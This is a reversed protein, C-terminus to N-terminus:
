VTIDLRNTRFWKVMTYITHRDSYDIYVFGTGSLFSIKFLPTLNEAITQVFYFFFVNGVFPHTGPNLVVGQIRSQLCRCSSSLVKWIFFVKLISQHWRYQSSFRLHLLLFTHSYPMMNMSLRLILSFLFM